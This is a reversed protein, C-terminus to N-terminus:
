ALALEVAQGADLALDDGVGDRQQRRLPCDEVGRAAELGLLVVLLGGPGALPVLALCAGRQAELRGAPRSFGCAVGVGREGHQQAAEPPLACDSLCSQAVSWASLSHVNGLAARK